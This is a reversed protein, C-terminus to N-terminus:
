ARGAEECTAGPMGDWGTAEMTDRDKSHGMGLTPFLPRSPFADIADGSGERPDPRLGPLRGGVPRGHNTPQALSCRRRGLSSSSSLLPFARVKSKTLTIMLKTFAIWGYEDQPPFSDTGSASDSDAGEDQDHVLHASILLHRGSRGHRGPTNPTCSCPCRPTPM